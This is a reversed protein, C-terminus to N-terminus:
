DYLQGGPLITYNCIVDFGMDAIVDAYSQDIVNKARGYIACSCDLPHPIVKVTTDERDKKPKMDFVSRNKCFSCPRQNRGAACFDSQMWPILGDSHVIIEPKRGEIDFTEKLTRLNELLDDASLEYSPMVTDAYSFALALSRSSYINTGASTFHELGGKLFKRDTFLRSSMVAKFADGLDNKLSIIVDDIIKNLKDHHFDPLMLVLEAGHENIFDTIVEYM